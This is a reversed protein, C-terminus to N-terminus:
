APLQLHKGAHPQASSPNCQIWKDGETQDNCKSHFGDVDGAKVISSSYALGFTGHELSCGQLIAMRSKQCRRMCVLNWVHLWGDKLVFM